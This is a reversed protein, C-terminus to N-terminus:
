ELTFVSFPVESLYAGAKTACMLTPQFCDLKNAKNTLLSYFITNHISGKYKKVASKAKQWGAHNKNSEFLDFM